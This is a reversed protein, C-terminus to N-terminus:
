KYIVLMSRLFLDKNTLIYDGAFDFWLRKFKKISMARVHGLYPDQLYINERDLNVVVSYHGDDESFWSVIVPIKKKNVYKRLDKIDVNDKIFGKLKFKKAVKLMDEGTVGHKSTGSLRVLEKESKEIGYYDLVMKLCSPGCYNERQEFPKLHIM